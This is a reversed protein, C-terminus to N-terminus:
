AQIRARKPFLVGEKLLLHVGIGILFLSLFQSPTPYSNYQTSILVFVSGRDDGRVFELAFRWVGYAFLYLPFEHKRAAKARDLFVFLGFLFASELLQTPIVKTGLGYLQSSYSGDPFAVGFLESPIGHCCGAFFCGIRGFAHAIVVGVIVVDLLRRIQASTQKLAFKALLWFSLLGGALGGLFTITGFTQEDPSHEVHVGTLGEWFLRWFSETQGPENAAQISHFIGDMFWSLFLAAALSVLIVVLLRNTEKRAFGERGDFRKQVYWLLAFVGIAVMVDYLPITYGFVEPLLYPYM